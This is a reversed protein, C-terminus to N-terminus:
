IHITYVYKCFARQVFKMDRYKSAKDKLEALSLVKDKVESLVEVKFEDPLCQICSFHQQKFDPKSACKSPTAQNKLEGKEFMDMIQCALVWIENRFCAQNFINIYTCRGMDQIHSHFVIM